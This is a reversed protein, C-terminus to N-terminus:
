LRKLKTREDEESPELELFKELRRVFIEDGDNEEEEEEEAPAEM